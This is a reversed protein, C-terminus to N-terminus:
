SGRGVVSVVGWRGHIIRWSATFPLADHITRTRAYYQVTSRRLRVRVRRFVFFDFVFFRPIVFWPRTGRRHRVQASYQGAAELCPLLTYVVSWEAKPHSSLQLRILNKRRKRSHVNTIYIFWNKGSYIVAKQSSQHEIVWGIRSVVAFSRKMTNQPYVHGLMRQASEAYNQIKSFSMQVLM